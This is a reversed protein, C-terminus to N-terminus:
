QKGAKALHKVINIWKRQATVLTKGPALNSKRQNLQEPQKLRSIVARNIEKQDDLNICKSQHPKAMVEDIGPFWNTLLPCGSAAAQFVGWSVVYPETFYCHLNTRRFLKSLDGYSILGTFHIRSPDLKGSLEALLAAKWSGSPDPCRLDSMGYAVRDKGFIVVQLEPIIAQAHAAARMFQPFGRMPEMGRTGYSLVPIGVPIVLPESLDTGQLELDDDHHGDHFLNIDVGDFIVEIQNAISAPFQSAQWHTPSIIKDAELIEQLIPLNRTKTKMLADIELNPMLRLLNEKSFYWEAYTVIKCNPYLSQIYSSFGFGAHVIAIDPQFNQSSLGILKKIVAQGNLVAEETSYLYHHIEQNIERHRKFTELKVGQLEINQRNESFSLFRVEAPLEAALYPAIDIFQGPFNQHIFLIKLKEM